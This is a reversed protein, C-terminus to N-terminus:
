TRAELTHAITQPDHGPGHHSLGANTAAYGTPPGSVPVNLRGRGVAPLEVALSDSVPAISELTM